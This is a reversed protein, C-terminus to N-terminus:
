DVIGPPRGQVLAPRQPQVTLIVELPLWALLGSMAKLGQSSAKAYHM